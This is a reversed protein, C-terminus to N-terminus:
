ASVNSKKTLLLWLFLCLHIVASALAWKELQAEHLIRFVLFLVFLANFSVLTYYFFFKRM